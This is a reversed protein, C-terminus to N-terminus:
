ESCCKYLVFVVSNKMDRSIRFFCFQYSNMHYVHKFSDTISVSDKFGVTIYFFFWATNINERSDLFFKIICTYMLSKCLDRVHTIM